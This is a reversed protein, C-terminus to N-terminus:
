PKPKAKDHSGAAAAPASLQKIQSELYRKESEPLNKSTALIARLLDAAAEREGVRAHLFAPLLRVWAPLRAMDAQKLDGLIEMAFAPDQLRHAAMMSAQATWRYERQPDAAGRRRLYGVIQRVQADDSSQGYLFAAMTPVVRAKPDLKDLAEFWRVLEAYDYESLPTARGGTDGFSQLELVRSRFALQEDGFSAARLEWAAPAPPVVDLRPRINTVQTQWVIVHLAFLLMLLWGIATPRPLKQWTFPRRLLSLLGKM